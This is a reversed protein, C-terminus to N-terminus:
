PQQPARVASPHTSVIQWGKGRKAFVATSLFNRVTDGRETPVTVRYRCHGLAAERDIMSTRCGLVEFKVRSTDAITNAMREARTLITDARPPVFTHDAALVRGLAITDHDQTAQILQRYLDTLQRELTPTAPTQGVAATPSALAVLMVLTM